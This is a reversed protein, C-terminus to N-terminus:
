RATLVKAFEAYAFYLSAAILLVGFGKKLWDEKILFALRAGLYAGPFIGAILLVVLPVNIHGLFFHVVSGPISILSVVLLSTGLARRIPMKLWHVFLPIMLFGGGLGLLGGIFGASLGTAVYKAPQNAIAGVAAESKEPAPVARKSRGEPVFFRAGSYFILVATAILLYQGSLYRTVYAGVLMAFFGSLACWKLAHYDVHNRRWYLFGATIASPVIAPLPTGVAVLPSVGLFTRILPTSILGGGIGFFGSFLGTVFGIFIGSFSFLSESM